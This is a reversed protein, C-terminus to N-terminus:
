SGGVPGYRGGASGPSPWATPPAARWRPRPRLGPLTQRARRPAGRRWARARPHRLRGSGWRRPRSVANGRHSSGWTAVGGNFGGRGSAQADQALTANSSHTNKRVEVSAQGVGRNEWGTGPGVPTWPAASASRGASAGRPVSVATSRLKLDHPASLPVPYGEGTGPGSCRACCRPRPAACRRCPQSRKWLFAALHPCPDGMPGTKGHAADM